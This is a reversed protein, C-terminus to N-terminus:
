APDPTVIILPQAKAVKASNEVLIAAVTGRTGATVRNMLKMVEVICVVSDSEVRDGVSVFPPEGPAPSRWFIGPSTALVADGAPIDPITPSKDNGTEVPPASAPPPSGAAERVAPLAQPADSASLYVEVGDVSLRIEQWDSAEFADLLRRIDAPEMMVHIRLASLSWEDHTRFAGHGGRREPWDNGDSIRDPRPPIEAACATARIARRGSQCRLQRNRRVGRRSLYGPRPQGVMRPLLRRGACGAPTGVLRLTYHRTVGDEGDLEITGGSPRTTGPLYELAHRVATLHVSRGDAYDLRGEFDLPKGDPNEHTNYFGCHDAVEFPVWMRLARREAPEDDRDTGKIGTPVAMSSRVGWSHDRMAHWRDIRLKEGNVTASGSARCIQTYRILDNVVAGFKFHQYRDEIFPPSQAELIVDFEIGAPNDAAVLRLRKMPELIEYRVPGVALENYRPHLARSGRVALQRNAHAVSAWGDIVNVNPHLRLGTFFYWDPAYFACFYGDNYHADTTAATAFPTPAQHFPYDDFPSLRM